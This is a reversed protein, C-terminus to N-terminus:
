ISYQNMHDYINLSELYIKEYNKPVDKIINKTIAFETSNIIDHYWHKYWIGFDNTKGKPWKLMKTSFDINLNQCLKKLYLEPDELLTDSNIVIIEKSINKNVYKFLRFMQDFGIDTISQLTNKKIYSNIVKSPHRILFCNTGKKLWEINTKDLIHHTMHKQYYIGKKNELISKIVENEKTPYFDIIEDKMPHNLNTEKLYYSYFPEDYVVTDDRNSFSRLLATSINRPGSWM